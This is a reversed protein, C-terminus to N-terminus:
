EFSGLDRPESGDLPILRNKVRLRDVGWRRKAVKLSEAVLSAEVGSPIQIGHSAEILRLQKKVTEPITEVKQFVKILNEAHPLTLTSFGSMDMSGIARGDGVPIWIPRIVIGNLDTRYARKQGEFPLITFAWLNPGRLAFNLALNRPPMWFGNKLPEMETRLLDMAKEEEVSAPDVIGGAQKALLPLLHPRLAPNQHALRIVKSRLDNSM